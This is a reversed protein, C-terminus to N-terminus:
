AFRSRIASWVSRGNFARRIAYSRVLSVATFCAALAANQGASIPVGMVLPIVVLNVAQSVALGIAINTLSEMLSDVKSQGADARVQRLRMALGYIASRVKDAPMGETDLANIFDMIKDGADYADRCDVWEPLIIGAPVAACPGEHGDGRTCAWGVPPVACVGAVTVLNPGCTCDAPWERIHWGCYDAHAAYRDNAVLGEGSM